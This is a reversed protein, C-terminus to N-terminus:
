PPKTFRGSCGKGISRKAESTQQSDEIMIRKTPHYSTVNIVLFYFGIMEKLTKTVMEFFKQINIKTGQPLAPCVALRYCLTYAM